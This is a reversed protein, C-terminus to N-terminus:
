KEDKTESVRHDVGESELLTVNTVNNVSVIRLLFEFETPTLEIEIKINSPYASTAPVECDGWDVCGDPTCSGQRKMAQCQPTLRM